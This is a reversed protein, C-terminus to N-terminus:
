RRGDKPLLRGALADCVERACAFRRPMAAERHPVSLFRVVAFVQVILVDAIRNQVPLPKPLPALPLRVARRGRELNDPQAASEAATMAVPFVCNTMARNWRVSQRRAKSESGRRGRPASCPLQSHPAISDVVKRIPPAARPAVLMVIRRRQGRAPGAEMPGPAQGHLSWMRYLLEVHGPSSAECV